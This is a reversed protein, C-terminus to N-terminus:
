IGGELPGIRMSHSKFPLRKEALVCRVKNSCISFGAHYLEFRSTSASGGIIKGVTAGTLRTNLATALEALSNSQHNLGTM